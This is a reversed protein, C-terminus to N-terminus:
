AMYITVITTVGKNILKTKYIERHGINSYDVVNSALVRQILYLNFIVSFLEKLNILAITTIKTYLRPVLGLQHQLQLSLQTQVNFM